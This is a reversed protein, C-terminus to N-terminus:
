NYPCELAESPTPTDCLRVPRRTPPRAVSCHRTVDRTLAPWGSMGGAQANAHCPSSAGWTDNHLLGPTPTAGREHPGRDGRESRRTRGWRQRLHFCSTCVLLNDSALLFSRMCPLSKDHSAFVGRALRLSTPSTVGWDLVQRLPIGNTPPLVGQWHPDQCPDSAREQALDQGECQRHHWFVGGWSYNDRWKLPGLGPRRLEVHIFVLPTSAICTSPSLM